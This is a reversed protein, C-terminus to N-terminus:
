GGVRPRGVINTHAPEAQAATIEAELEIARASYTKADQWARRVVALRLNTEVRDLDERLRRLRVDRSEDSM